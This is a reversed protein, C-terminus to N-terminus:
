AELGVAKLAADKSMFVRDRVVKGDRIEYVFVAPAEMPLGSGPARGAMATAVVVDNSGADIFEVPKISFDGWTAVFHWYRDRFGGSPFM